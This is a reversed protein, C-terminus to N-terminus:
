SSGSSVMSASTEGSLDPSSSHASIVWISMATARILPLPTGAWWTHSGGSSAGSVISRIIFSRAGSGRRPRTDIDHRSRPGSRMGSPM